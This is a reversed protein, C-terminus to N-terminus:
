RLGKRNRRAYVFHMPDNLLIKYGREQLYKTIEQFETPYHDSAIALSVDYNGLLREAGKLISLESGEANIKVFDVRHLNLRCILEDLTETKVEISVKPSHEFADKREESITHSLSDLGVYLRTTGTFDSLAENIGIVNQISNQALNYMLLNYTPLYPEVAVVIGKKTKRAAKLAFIGVHAGIDVVVDENQIEYFMDFIRSRYISYNEGLSDLPQVVVGAPLKSQVFARGVRRVFYSFLGYKPRQHFKEIKPFDLLRKQWKQGFVVRLFIKFSIDYVHWAFPQFALKEMCSGDM